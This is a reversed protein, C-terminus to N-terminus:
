DLHPQVFANYLNKMIKENVYHRLKVLFANSKTLKTNIHKIHNEWTLKNDVIIGLYKAFVKEELLENNIKLEIKDVNSENKNKFLLVNTKKV